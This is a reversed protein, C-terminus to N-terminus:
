IQQQSDRKPASAHHWEPGGRQNYRADRELHGGIRRVQARELNDAADKDEDAADGGGKGEQCRLFLPTFPLTNIPLAVFVGEIRLAVSERVSCGLGRRNSSQPAMAPGNNIRVTSM